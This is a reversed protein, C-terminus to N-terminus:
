RTVQGEAIIELLGVIHNLSHAISTAAEALPLIAIAAARDDPMGTAEALADLRAAASRSFEVSSDHFLWSLDDFVTQMDKM